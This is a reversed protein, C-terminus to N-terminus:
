GHSNKVSNGKIEKYKFVKQKKEVVALKTKSAKKSM